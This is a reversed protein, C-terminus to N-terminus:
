PEVVGSCTGIDVNGQIGNRIDYTINVQERSFPTAASTSTVDNTVVVVLTKGADVFQGTKNVGDVTLSLGTGGMTGFALGTVNVQHNGNRLQITYGNDARLRQEEYQFYTLGSCRSQQYTQPNLVGLAYLAAGVIVIVLLAWGYTMLYELAGQGKESRRLTARVARQKKKKQAM